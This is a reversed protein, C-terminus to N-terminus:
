EEFYIELLESQSKKLHDSLTGTKELEIFGEALSESILQKNQKAWFAVDDASVSKKANNFRKDLCSMGAGLLRITVFHPEQQMSSDELSQINELAQTKKQVASATKELVHQLFQDSGKSLPYSPDWDALYGAALTFNRVPSLIGKKYSRAFHDIDDKTCINKFTKFRSRTGEGGSVFNFFDDGQAKLLNNILTPNNEINNLRVSQRTKFGDTLIMTTKEKQNTDTNSSISKAQKAMNVGSEVNSMNSVAYQIGEKIKEQAVETDIIGMARLASFISLLKPLNPGLGYYYVYGVMADRVLRTCLKKRKLDHAKDKNLDRREYHHNPFASRAGKKDFRRRPLVPFCPSDFSTHEKRMVRERAKLTKPKEEWLTRGQPSLASRPMRQAAPAPPLEHSALSFLPSTNHLLSNAIQPTQAPLFAQQASISITMFKPSSSAGKKSLPVWYLFYFACALFVSTFLYILYKIVLECLSSALIVEGTSQKSFVLEKKSKCDSITKKNTM